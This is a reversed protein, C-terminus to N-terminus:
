KWIKKIYIMGIAAVAGGITSLVGWQIKMKSVSLTLEEVKVQMTDIKDFLVADTDKRNNMAEKLQGLAAAVKLNNADMTQHAECHPREISM